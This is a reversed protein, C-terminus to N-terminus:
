RNIRRVYIKRDWFFDCHSEYILHNSFFTLFFICPPLLKRDVAAPGPSALFTSNPFHKQAFVSGSARFMPRRRCPVDTAGPEGPRYGPRVTLRFFISLSASWPPWLSRTLFCPASCTARRARRASQ